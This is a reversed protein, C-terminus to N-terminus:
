ENLGPRRPPAKWREAHETESRPRRPRLASGVPASDAAWGITVVGAARYGAPLGVLAELGDFAHAGLFGAALGENTAGLLLLMLAAGADIWWYPVPWVDVSEGGGKDVESYRRRYADPEVAIVVHVPATSLWPEIGKEVYSAEGAAAALAARGDDTTVVVLEVGQTFGASPARRGMDLIRDLTDPSVAQALYRRVM